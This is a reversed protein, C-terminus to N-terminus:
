LMPMKKKLDYLSCMVARFNSYVFINVVSARSRRGCHSAARPSQPTELAHAVVDGFPGWWSPGSCTSVLLARRRKDLQWTQYEAAFSNQCYGNESNNMKEVAGNCHIAIVQAGTLVFADLSLVDGMCPVYVLWLFAGGIPPAALLTSAFVTNFSSVRPSVPHAIARSLKPLTKEAPQPCGRPWFLSVCSQKSKVRLVM